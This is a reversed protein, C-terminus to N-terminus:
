RALASTQMRSRSLQRRIKGTILALGALLMAYTQPEPVLSINEIEGRITTFDGAGDAYEIFGPTSTFSLSLYKVTNFNELSIEAPLAFSTLGLGDGRWAANYLQFQFGVPVVPLPALAGTVSINTSGGSFSSSRHEAEGDIFTQLNDFHGRATGLTTNLIFSGQNAYNTAFPLIVSTPSANEDYTLHASFPTDALDLLEQPTERSIFDPQLTGSLEWTVASADGANILGLALAFGAIKHVSKM